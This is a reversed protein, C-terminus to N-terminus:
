RNSRALMAELQYHGYLETLTERLVVEEMSRCAKRHAHVYDHCPKCLPIVTWHNKYQTGLRIHHAECPHGNGCRGCTMLKVELLHQLEDKTARKKSM